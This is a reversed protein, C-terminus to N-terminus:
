QYKRKFIESLIFATKVNQPDRLLRAYITTKSSPAAMDFAAFRKKQDDLGAYTSRQPDEYDVDNAENRYVPVYEEQSIQEYSFPKERDTQELQKRTKDQARELKQSVKKRTKDLTQEAKKRATEATAQKTTQKKQTVEGFEDLLDDFSFPGTKRPPRNTQTTPVSPEGTVEVPPTTGEPPKVAKNVGKLILYIVAIAIYVLIQIGDM